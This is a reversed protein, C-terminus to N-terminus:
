HQFQMTGMDVNKLLYLPPLPGKVSRVQVAILNGRAFSMTAEVQRNPDCDHLQRVAQADIPPDLAPSCTKPMREAEPIAEHANVLECVCEM